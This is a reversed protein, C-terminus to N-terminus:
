TKPRITYNWEGHFKDRKIALSEMQQDTVERGTPYINEDLASRITVGTKTTTHGILNVVVERSVLPRGRWNETIHCCMRHEIKNWKSTGAPFHGVSICLGSEDAFRQLEVKWLRCRSGNSGGGDATILIRKAKPYVKSGMHRWWRRVTEVAFEATDHDVGVSVWGTNTGEDYVGYPIIKGLVKDPFDHVNVEEPQGQLHWEQGGNRYQGVLEKKKTDVSVVPQGQKQFVKARRNIYQFQADRDPHNCGELTKRNSQLSYGLDHLLRNVTRESVAHGQAQLAAALKAASKCTWRLLSMPDGRTVPDVLTELAQLLHPDRTGLPKRGGGPRRLREPPPQPSTATAPLALEQLGARITARSLGTAEAVQSIGGRGLARAEVAAWLRRAREDLLPKLIAFKAAITQTM